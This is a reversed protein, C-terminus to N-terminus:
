RKRRWEGGRRGYNEEWHKNLEIEELILEADSQFHTGKTRGGELWALHGKEWVGM